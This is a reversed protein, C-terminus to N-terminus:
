FLTKQLPDKPAQATKTKPPPTQELEQKHVQHNLLLLRKLIEKRSDPSITFRIRDNEPLYDVEYFDHAPHIDTWGYATLVAMDMQKHLERLKLLDQFATEVTPTDKKSEKIIDQLSLDKKHFLNYTKTLGLEMKMMLQRRHEHYCEGIKELDQEMEKSLNQPFPFTEFCDSPTYRLRTELTSSYKRAWENHLTSQIISFNSFKDNDYIVTADTFIINTPCASFSMYKSTRAAAFCNIKTKIKLYLDTRARMYQWWKEKGIKEKQKQREPFVKEKIIRYPEEYNKAIEESWDFFNIIYRTNSQIPEKNLDDGNLLPFIVDKNKIDKSILVDKENATLIFGSGSFNSGIFAKNKNSLINYPKIISENAFYSNIYDSKDNDLHCIKKWEGKFISILSIVLKAAGPWKLSRVVFIISGKMKEIIDLGGERTDGQAITNTSILGLFGYQKILTYDRRFFYAALDCTGGAPAFNYKIWNFYNYGFNPSIRLGGLFPPNGMICDFGGKIFVDPFELFWHFFKRKEGEAEAAKVQVTSVNEYGKLYQWYDSDILLIDVNDQTKPIFFQAVRLDALRKMQQWHRGSVLKKYEAEKYEIEEISREPLAAFKQFQIIINDMPDKVLTHPILKALNENRQTRNRRGLARVVEPDDGPMRNFAEDPIGQELEEKHALGVIADGCKIRHDLFNLPEGPVHAELWLAVKCLEVALPNKDVGYICHTVADRIGERIATPSPQDEGTRVKALEVGIRRAASLLIHGSGCTADCVKISLLAKETESPGAPPWVKTFTQDFSKNSPRPKHCAEILHDLSHRILPQV